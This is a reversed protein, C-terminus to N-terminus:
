QSYEECAVGIVDIRNISKADYNAIYRLTQDLNFTVAKNGVRLTLEGEYVDILARGTPAEIPEVILAVIPESNQIKTEVKDVSPHVDKTSGNNTPPM